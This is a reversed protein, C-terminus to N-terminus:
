STKAFQSFKQRCLNLLPHHCVLLPLFLCFNLLLMNKRRGVRWFHWSGGGVCQEKGEWPELSSHMVTWHQTMNVHWHLLLMSSTLQMMPNDQLHPSNMCTGLGRVLATWFLQACHVTLFIPHLSPKIFSIIWMCKDETKSVPLTNPLQYCPYFSCMLPPLHIWATEPFICRLNHLIYDVTVVWYNM